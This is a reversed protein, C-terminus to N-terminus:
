KIKAVYPLILYKAAAPMELDYRREREAKWLKRYDEGYYAKDFQRMISISWAIARLLVRNRIAPKPDIQKWSPSIEKHAINKNRRFRLNKNDLYNYFKKIEDKQIKFKDAAFNFNLRGHKSSSLESLRSIIDDRFKSRVLNILQLNKNQMDREISETQLESAKFDYINLVIWSQIIEGIESRLMNVLKDPETQSLISM